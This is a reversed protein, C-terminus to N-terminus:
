ELYKDYAEDVEDVLDPLMGDTIFEFYDKYEYETGMDPDVDAQISGDHDILYYGDEHAPNGVWVSKGDTAIGNTVDQNWGDEVWAAIMSEKQKQTLKNWPKNYYYVPKKLHAYKGSVSKRFQASGGM